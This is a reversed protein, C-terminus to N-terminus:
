RKPLVLTPRYYTEVRSSCYWNRRQWNEQYVVSTFREKRKEEIQLLAEKTIQKDLDKRDSNYQEIESNSHRNLIL